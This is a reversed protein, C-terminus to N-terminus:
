GRTGIAPTGRPGSRSGSFGASPYISGGPLGAEENESQGERRERNAVLEREDMATVQVIQLLKSLLVKARQFGDVSAQPYLRIQSLAGKPLNEGQVLLSAGRAGLNRFEATFHYGVIKAWTFHQLHM